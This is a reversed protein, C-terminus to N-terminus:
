TKPVTPATKVEEALGLLESLERVRPINKETMAKQLHTNILEEALGINKPTLLATAFKLAANRSPM